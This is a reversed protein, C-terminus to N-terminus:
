SEQVHITERTLPEIVEPVNDIDALQLLMEMGRTKAIASPSDLLENIVDKGRAQIKDRAWTKLDGTIEAATRESKKPAEPDVIGIDTNAVLWKTAEIDNMSAGAIFSQRVINEINARATRRTIEFQEAFEPNNKIHRSWVQVPILTAAAADGLRCGKKILDLYSKETQPDIKYLKEGKKPM